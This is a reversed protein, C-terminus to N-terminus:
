RGPTGKMSLPIDGHVTSEIGPDEDHFEVQGIIIPKGDNPNATTALENPDPSVWDEELNGVPEINEVFSM